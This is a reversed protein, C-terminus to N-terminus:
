RQLLRLFCKVHGIVIGIICNVDPFDSRKDNEANDENNQQYGPRSNRYGNGGSVCSENVAGKGTTNGFVAIIETLSKVQNCRPVVYHYIFGTLLFSSNRHSRK